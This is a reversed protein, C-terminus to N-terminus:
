KRPIQNWYFNYGEVQREKRKIEELICEKQSKPGFNNAINSSYDYCDTSYPHPLLQTRSWKMEFYNTGPLIIFRNLKEFQSPIWHPNLILEVLKLGRLIFTVAEIFEFKDEYFFTLCISYKRLMAFTKNMMEKECNFFIKNKFMCLFTKKKQNLLQERKLCLTMAPLASYSLKLDIEILHQYKLYDNTLDIFQYIFGIYVFLILFHRLLSM